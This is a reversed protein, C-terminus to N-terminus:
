KPRARARPAPLEWENAIRIQESRFVMFHDAVGGDDYSRAILNDRKLHKAEEIEEALGEIGTEQFDIEFRKEMRLYCELMRPKLGTSKAADKAYWEANKRDNTFYYVEGVELDMHRSGVTKPNFVDFEGATGHFYLFPRGKADVAESQGFWRWFERVGEENPHILAGDCNHIPRMVGDVDIMESQKTM